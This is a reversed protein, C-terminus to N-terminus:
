KKSRRKAERRKAEQGMAEEGMAEQGIAEQGETEQGETGEGEAEESDAEESESDEDVDEDDEEDSSSEWSYDTEPSYKPEGDTEVYPAVGAWMRDTPLITDLFDCRLNGYLEFRDAKYEDLEKYMQNLTVDPRYSYSVAGSPHPCCLYGVGRIASRANLLDRITIGTAVQLFCIWEFRSYRRPLSIAEFTILAELCPPNTLYMDLLTWNPKSDQIRFNKLEPHNPSLIIHDCDSGYHYADPDREHSEFLPSPRFTPNLIATKRIRNRMKPSASFDPSSYDPPPQLRLVPRVGTLGKGHGNIKRALRWAQQPVRTTRLFMLEQLLSSADIANRFTTSLRRCSIIEKPQLFSLINEVLEVVGLM